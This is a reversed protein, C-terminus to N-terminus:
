LGRECYSQSHGAEMCNNIQKNNMNCLLMITAVCIFGGVFVFLLNEKREQKKQLKRQQELKSRMKMKNEYLMEKM